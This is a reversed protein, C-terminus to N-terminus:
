PGGFQCKDARPGGNSFMHYPSGGMLSSKEPGVPPNHVVTQTALLPPGAMLCVLCNGPAGPPLLPARHGGFMCKVVFILMFITYEEKEGIKLHM